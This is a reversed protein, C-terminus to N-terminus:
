AKSKVTLIGIAKPRTLGSMVPITSVARAGRDKGGARAIPWTAPGPIHLHYYMGPWALPTREDHEGNKWTAFLIRPHHIWISSLAQMETGRSPPSCGTSSVSSECTVTVHAM